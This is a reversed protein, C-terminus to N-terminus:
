LTQGVGYVISVKGHQQELLLDEVALRNVVTGVGAVRLTNKQRPFGEPQLGRM